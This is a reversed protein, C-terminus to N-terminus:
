GVSMQLDFDRTQSSPCAQQCPQSRQSRSGLRKPPISAGPVTYATHKGLARGHLGAHVFKNNRRLWQVFAYYSGNISHKYPDFVKYISFYRM